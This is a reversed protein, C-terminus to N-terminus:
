KEETDIMALLQKAVEKAVELNVEICISNSVNGKSTIPSLMFGYSSRLIEIGVTKVTKQGGIAITQKGEVTEDKILYQKNEVIQIVKVM